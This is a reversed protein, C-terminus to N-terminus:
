CSREFNHTEFDLVQGPANLGAREPTLTSEYGNIRYHATGEEHIGFRYTHGVPGSVIHVSTPSDLYSLSTHKLDVQHWRISYKWGSNLRIEHHEWLKSMVERSLDLDETVFRCHNNLLHKSM